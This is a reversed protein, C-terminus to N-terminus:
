SVVCFKKPPMADRLAQNVYDLQKYSSDGTVAGTAFQECNNAFTDYCSGASAFENVTSVVNVRKEDYYYDYEVRYFCMEKEFLNSIKLKRIENKSCMSAIIMKGGIYIGHRFVKGNTRFALHDGLRVEGFRTAHLRSAGRVFVRADRLKMIANAREFAKKKRLVVSEFFRTLITFARFASQVDYRKLLNWEEKSIKLFCLGQLSM